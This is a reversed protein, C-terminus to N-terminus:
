FFSIIKKKMPIPFPTKRITFMERTAAEREKRWRLVRLDVRKGGDERQTREVGAM